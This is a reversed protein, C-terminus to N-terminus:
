DLGGSTACLQIELAVHSTKLVLQWLMNSM